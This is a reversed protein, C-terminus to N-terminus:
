FLLLDNFVADVFSNVHDGFGFLGKSFHDITRDLGQVGALADGADHGLNSRRINVDIEAGLLGTKDRNGLQAVIRGGFRFVNNVDAIFDFNEDGLDVIGFSDNRQRLLANVGGAAPFADVGGAGVFCQQFASDNFDVFAADDDGHVTDTNKNRSGMGTHRFICVQVFHELLVDGQADRFDVAGFAADDTGDAIGVFVQALGSSFLNPIGDFDAVDVFADHFRQGREACEDVDAACVTHSVDGLEAPRADLVRGFSNRDAVFDCGAHDRQIAVLLLNRQRQFIFGVIRPRLESRGALDAVDHVDLNDLQHREACKGFDDRTNVTQDVDGLQGVM